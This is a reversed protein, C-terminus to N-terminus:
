LEVGFQYATSQFFKENPKLLTSPFNPQNMSDAFHQTEFCIASHKSYKRGAHGHLSGDLFNGSYVQVGPQSTFVKLTRGSKEHRLVVDPVVPNRKKELVFCHDLEIVAPIDRDALLVAEQFDLPSNAVPLLKGTPLLNNNLEVYEKAAVKLQHDAIDNAFGNLNFYSHNTLNLYTPQDTVAEYEVEIRNEPLIKYITKVKLNGPYGEELHPSLYFLEISIFDPKETIQYDWLRTHFGEAGGHLHCFEDQLSLQYDIGELSFRGFAIRGAYRGIVAGFYPNPLLYNELAMFGAAIHDLKGDRDPTEISTIIGGYNTIAVRMGDDCIIQFLKAKLGNPLIGFDVTTLNM